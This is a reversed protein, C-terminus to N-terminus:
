LRETKVRHVNEEVEQLTCVQTGPKSATVTGATAARAAIEQLPLGALLGHAIAAVMSDGAGVTSQPTIAFPTVRYTEREDMVIAGDGGMSIVLLSLGGGLLERGAAVVDAQEPLERGVLQELEYLNPKIAFPRAELGAKLAAGDADLITRVGREQAMAVFRSYVDAPVGQPLSGGLVLLDAGGLLEGLNAAFAELQGQEVAFGSENLETTVRSEADYIKMNVRTQGAIETFQHEIGKAQLQGLLQQGQSGAILGTARVQVGFDHLVKAVNIGKGGPDIRTEAVRNLGGVLLSPVTVTKDIAPNLTVTVVYRGM